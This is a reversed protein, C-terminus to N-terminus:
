IRVKYLLDSKFWRERTLPNQLHAGTFRVREKDGIRERERQSERRESVGEGETASRGESPTANGFTCVCVWVRQEEKTHTYLCANIVYVHTGKQLEYLLKCCIGLRAHRNCAHLPEIEKDM